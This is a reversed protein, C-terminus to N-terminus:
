STGQPSSTRERAAASPVAPTGRRGAFFAQVDALQRTRRFPPLARWIRKGYPKDVLRPDCIVLAGRDAEDRILRGAGQKLSIVARPLQYDMFANGGARNIREICAALVPDDPPNFPLRDIVVVSLQEGKVDVGEWFSQSGVLVANPSRRFRDLLESKAARGQLLLPWALGEDALRQALLAHGREMARLSTFLLFAHGASARVVPWAAEIVANVYGESNPDPLGEPVYLLAQNAFDYPSPWSRTRADVLGMEGQYHRFDGDVSLTASTFIWAREGAAIQANFIRGVDLPTAYLVASHAYAEIWRVVDPGAGEDQSDERPRADAERWETVRALCQDARAHCSRIEEAREEQAALRAGLERLAKALQDLAADFAPRDRLMALATRGSATGLALRVDRAATELAIAADGMLNSEPAHQAEALRVDRALELLQSTSLSEGFFLRALDPLHHAEDFIVTQAAPLLDAAGEDRLVVDAFFLHHNVVVVDAEAARKRAKMVFCDQYHKCASGLCNERTSTAYAWAGSSEAVDACDNRDGTVTTAAFRRIKQLELAEDRAAFTGQAAAAELHHLCVYNARGKLLALDVTSGLAQRVRPLDRHYLQDQLTKTGTSVIVRGGSLLAPVLYAFTKGTGTGAEAILVGRAAIAEGVAEAFEAQQPRHRFGPVARELVGGPGFISAADLRNM